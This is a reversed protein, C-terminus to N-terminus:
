TDARRLGAGAFGVGLLEPSWKALEDTKGYGYRVAFTRV